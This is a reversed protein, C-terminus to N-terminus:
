KYNNNNNNPNNNPNNVDLDGTFYDPINFESPDPIVIDDYANNVPPTAPNQINFDPNVSPNNTFYEDPNFGVEPNMATQPNIHMNDPTYMNNSPPYNTPNYNYQATNPNYIQENTYLPQNNVPQITQNILEKLTTEILAGSAGNKVQEQLQMLQIVSSLRNAAEQRANEEQLAKLKNDTAQRAAAERAAVADRASGSIFTEISDVLSELIKHVVRASFGGLFALLPKYTMVAMNGSTNQSIGTDGVFLFQALIVGSVVGLVFRIWYISDYKADYSATSVYKYAEFLAYFAAGLAAASVIFLENLLFKKPEYSLIDGNISVADVDPSIFLGLFGLLCIITVFMMKRVMPVPGLFSFLRHKTKEMLVVTSPTAPAIAAALLNHVAGVDDINNTSRNTALDSDKTNQLEKIKSLVTPDIKKGNELAYKLMIECEQLAQAQLMHTNDKHPTAM